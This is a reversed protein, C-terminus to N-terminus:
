LEYNKNIVPIVNFLPKEYPHLKRIVSIAELVKKESCRFEVKLEEAKSIEGIKGDYPDAGELPRWYGTVKTTSLCHDYDGITLAGIENLANHLKLFYDEPIYVEFKAQKIEM